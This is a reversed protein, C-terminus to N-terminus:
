DFATLLAALKVDIQECKNTKRLPPPRTCKDRNKSVYIRVDNIQKYKKNLSKTGKRVKVVNSINSIKEFEKASM